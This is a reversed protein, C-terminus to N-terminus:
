RLIMPTPGRPPFRRDHDHMPTPISADRRRAARHKPANIPIPARIPVDHPRLRTPIPASRRPIMPARIPADHPRLRTPIPADRPPACRPTKHRQHTDPHPDVTV